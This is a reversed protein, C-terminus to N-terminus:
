FSQMGPNDPRDLWALFNPCQYHHHSDSCDQCKDACHLHSSNGCFPCWQHNQCYILAKRILASEVSAFPLQIDEKCMLYLEKQMNATETLADRLADSIVIRLQNLEFSLSNSFSNFDSTYSSDCDFDFDSDSDSDGKLSAYYNSVHCLIRPSTPINLDTSIPIPASHVLISPQLIM